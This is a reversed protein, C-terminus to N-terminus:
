RLQGYNEFVASFGFISVFRVFTIDLHYGGSDCRYGTCFESIEGFLSVSWNERLVAFSGFRLFQSFVPILM